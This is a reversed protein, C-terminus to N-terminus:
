FNGGWTMNFKDAAETGIDRTIVRSPQNAKDVMEPTGYLVDFSPLYNTSTNDPNDRANVDVARAQQRGYQDVTDHLSPTGFKTTRNQAGYTQSPDIDIGRSKLHDFLQQWRWPDQMGGLIGGYDAM